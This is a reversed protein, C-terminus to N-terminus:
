NLTLFSSCSAVRFLFKNEEDTMQEFNIENILKYLKNVNIIPSLLNQFDFINEIYNKKSFDKFSNLSANFGYKRRSYLIKRNLIEKMSNRLLFKSYGDKIFYNSPLSFVFDILKSDLFPTRNEVSSMMSNLDDMYLIPSLREPMQDIMNNKLYSNFKRSKYFIKKNIKSKFVEGFNAIVSLNKNKDKYYKNFNKYNENRLIPYTNKKWAAFNLKFEKNSFNKKLDALHYLYHDYYGAFIEDAGNGSLIVKFGRKSIKELMVAHLLYNVTLVPSNYYKVVKNLTKFFSINETYMFNKKVNTDKLTHNILHLENYKPSKQDIISFTDVNINFRKKAISVLSGSDIGGSLCFINKVDSRMRIKLSDCVLETIKETVFKTNPKLIQKKNISWFKFSRIQLKFNIKNVTSPKLSYINSKFTNQDLFVSNYGFSLYDLCKNYNPSKVESSLSEIFKTESAFFIGNNDKSIYLPKEGFRDRSLVLEKTKKNFIAIAWMGELMNFAKEGYRDILKILVETDSSTLFKYGKQTLLKRLEIFNYIEGNFVLVNNKHIFPQNSREKLDIISLRTHLLLVQFNEFVLRKYNSADPGRNKMLALTKKIASVEIRKNGIYGAIGCM